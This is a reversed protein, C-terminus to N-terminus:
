TQKLPQLRATFRSVEWVRDYYIHVYVSASLNDLILPGYSVYLGNKDEPEDSGECDFSYCGLYQAGLSFNIDIPDQVEEPFVSDMFPRGDKSRCTGELIGTGNTQLIKILDTESGSDDSDLNIFYLVIVGLSIKSLGHFFPKIPWLLEPSFVYGLGIIIM